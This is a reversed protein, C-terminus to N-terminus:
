VPTINMIRFDKKTDLKSCFLYFDREGNETEGLMGM